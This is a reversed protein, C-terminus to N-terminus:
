AEGASRILKVTIHRGDSWPWLMAFISETENHWFYLTQGQMIGGYEEIAQTILPLLKKEAPWAPAGFFKELKECLRGAEEKIVVAEFEGEADKRTTKFSIGRLADRIELFNM